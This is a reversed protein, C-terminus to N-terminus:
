SRRCRRVGERGLVHDIRSGFAAPPDDFLTESWCCTNEELGLDEFGGHPDYQDGVITNYATSAPPPDAPDSNLDGLLIVPLSPSLPGTESVLETAQANRTAAVFSELHTNVFQFKQKKKKSQEFNVDVANYGRVVDVPVTGQIPLGFLATTYNESQQNSTKVGKKALIVDQMTLRVDFEATDDGSISIPAEIDAEQQLSAVKYNLGRRKLEDQLLELYDYVIETSPTTSGDVAGRQGRRWIAVEQLGILDPDADEIEQALLKVRATINTDQVIKYVDGAAERAAGPTGAIIIPDLVAGLYLNRTMVDVKVPKKAKAEAIAPVAIGTIGVAVAVPSGRM